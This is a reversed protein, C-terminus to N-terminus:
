QGSNYDLRNFSLESKKAFDNKIHLKAYHYSKLCIICM